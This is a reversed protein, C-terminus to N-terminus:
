GVLNLLLALALADGGLGLLLMRLLDIRRFVRKWVGEVDAERPFWRKVKKSALRMKGEQGGCPVGKYDCFNYSIEGM